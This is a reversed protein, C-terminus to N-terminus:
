SEIYKMHGVDMDTTVVMGNGVVVKSGMAM